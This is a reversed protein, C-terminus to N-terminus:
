FNSTPEVTIPMPISALFRLCGTLSAIPLDELVTGSPVDAAGTTLAIALALLLLWM